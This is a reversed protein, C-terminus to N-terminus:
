VRFETLGQREFFSFFRTEGKAERERREDREEGRERREEKAGLQFRNHERKNKTKRFAVQVFVRTLMLEGNANEQQSLTDHIFFGRPLLSSSSSSLFCSLQRRGPRQGTGNKNRESFGNRCSTEPNHQPFTQAFSFVGLVLLPLFLLLPPLFSPAFLVRGSM